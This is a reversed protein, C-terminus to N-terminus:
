AHSTSRKNFVAPSVIVTERIYLMDGPRALKESALAKVIDVAVLWDFAAAYVPHGDSRGPHLPPVRASEGAFDTEVVSFDTRTVGAAEADMELLTLFVIIETVVREPL